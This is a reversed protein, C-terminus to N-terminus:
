SGVVFSGAISNVEAVNMALDARAGPPPAKFPSQGVPGHLLQLQVCSATCGHLM